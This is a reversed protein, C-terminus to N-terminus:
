DAVKQLPEKIQFLLLPNRRLAQFVANSLLLRGGIDRFRVMAEYAFIDQRFARLHDATEVGFRANGIVDLLVGTPLGAM